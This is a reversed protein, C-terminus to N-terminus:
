FVSFWASIPMHLVDIFYHWMNLNGLLMAAAAMVAAAWWSSRLAFVLVPALAIWMLPWLPDLGNGFWIM